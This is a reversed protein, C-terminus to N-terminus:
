TYYVDSDADCFQSDVLAMQVTTLKNEFSKIATRAKALEARANELAQSNGKPGSEWFIWNTETVAAEIILREEPSLNPFLFHIILKETYHSRMNEVPNAQAMSIGFDNLKRFIELHREDIDRDILASEDIQPSREYTMELWLHECALYAYDDAQRYLKRMQRITEDDM